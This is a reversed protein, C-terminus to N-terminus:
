LPCQDFKSTCIGISVCSDANFCVLSPNTNNCLTIIDPPNSGDTCQWLIRQPWFGGNVKKMENRELKKM